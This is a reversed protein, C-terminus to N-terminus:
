QQVAEELEEIFSSQSKSLKERATHIDFWEARDIEPFLQIKGSSPPWELSFNNSHVSSSDLDGKLAYAHIIKGSTLKVPKLKYFDGDVEIGTEEYFERRAAALLEEGPEIEGKPISWVGNEKHSWFPGGPHVLLVELVKGRFRYLLVGASIKAMDKDVLSIVFGALKKNNGGSWRRKWCPM